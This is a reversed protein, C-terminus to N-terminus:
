FLSLSLASLLVLAVSNFDPSGNCSYDIKPTIKPLKNIINTLYYKEYVKALKFASLIDESKTIMMLGIPLGDPAYKDSKSFGIPINLSPLGTYPSIFTPSANILPETQNIFFPLDLSTPLILLDVNARIFWDNVYSTFKLRLSDHIECGSKCIENPNQFNSRNFREFWHNLLPSSLIDSYTKYPSDSQFRDSDNIYKEFSAKFCSDICNYLGSLIIKYSLQNLEDFETQNVEIDIIKYNSRIFNNKTNNM